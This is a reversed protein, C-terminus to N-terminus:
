IPDAWPLCGYSLPPHSSLTNLINFKGLWSIRLVVVGMTESLLKLDLLPLLKGTLGLTSVM